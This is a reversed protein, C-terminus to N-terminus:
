YSLIGSSLLISKALEAKELNKCFYYINYEQFAGKTLSAIDEIKLKFKKEPDKKCYLYISNLPNKKNGGIYGLKTEYIIIEDETIVNNSLECIEKISLKKPPINIDPDVRQILTGVHKYLKRKLIRNYLEHVNKNDEEKVDEIKSIIRDDTMRLFDYTYISHQIDLDKFLYLIDKIMYQISIVKPHSYIQKHLKYRANFMSQIESAFQSKYCIIDDIVAVNKCLLKWNFGFNLNLTYTDRLLYDFKDSDIGNLNNSVIQYVFGTYNSSPNILKKIFLLENESISIKEENIIRELIVGSRVEHKTMSDDSKLLLDDFVHSFPGHGLDHCLGAIKILECIWPTLEPKKFSDKLESIKTLCESLHKENSNEIIAKLLDDTTKYTGISHAFRTHNASPWIRSCFGLQELKRLRQFWLTDIIKCAINSLYIQGHIADHIIKYKQNLEISLQQM